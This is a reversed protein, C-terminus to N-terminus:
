KKAELADTAGKTLLAADNAVVVLAFGETIRRAAAQPGSSYIGVPIGNTAAARTIAALAATMEASDNEPHPYVCGLSVALDVPGVFLGDLGRVTAIHEVTALGAANEIQALCLTQANAHHLYEMMGLEFPLGAWASGLSRAGMPPFKAADVLATADPVRTVMPAIIGAAGADLARKVPEVSNHAVRVLVSAGADALAGIMATMTEIGMPGHEADLCFWDFGLRTLLRAAPVCPLTLWMGRCPQGDMLRHRLPNAKM